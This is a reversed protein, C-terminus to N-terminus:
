HVSALLTIVVAATVAIGDVVAWCRYRQSGVAVDRDHHPLIGTICLTPQMGALM